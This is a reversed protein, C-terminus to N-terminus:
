NKNDLALLDWKIKVQDDPDIHNSLWDVATQEEENADRVVPAEIQRWPDTTLHKGELQGQTYLLHNVFSGIAKIKHVRRVIQGDSMLEQVKHSRYPTYLATKSTGPFLVVIEDSWTNFFLHVNELQNIYKHYDIYGIYGVRLSHVAADFPCTNITKILGKRTEVLGLSNGNDSLTTKYSLQPQQHLNEVNVNSRLYKGRKKPSNLMGKWLDVQNPSDHNNIDIPQLVKSNDKVDSM